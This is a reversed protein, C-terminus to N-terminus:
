KVLDGIRQAAYYGPTYTAKIWTEGFALCGVLAVVGAIGAIVGVIGCENYSDVRLKRVVLGVVVAAMLVVTACVAFGIGGTVQGLWVAQEAVEPTVDQLTELIAGVQKDTENMAITM